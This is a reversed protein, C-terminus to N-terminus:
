YFQFALRNSGAGDCAINRELYLTKLGNNSFCM